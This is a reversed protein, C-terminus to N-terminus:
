ESMMRDLEGQLDYPEIYLATHAADYHTSEWEDMGDFLPSVAEWAAEPWEKIYQLAAVYADEYDKFIGLTTPVEEDASARSLAFHTLHSAQKMHINDAPSPSKEVVNM